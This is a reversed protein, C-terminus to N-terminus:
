GFIIRIAENVAAERNKDAKASLKEGEAWGRRHADAKTQEAQIGAERIIKEADANAELETASLKEKASATTEAVKKRAEAEAEKILTEGQLEAERIKEIMEKAM